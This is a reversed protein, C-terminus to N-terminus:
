EQNSVRHFINKPCLIISGTEQIGCSMDVQICKKKGNEM